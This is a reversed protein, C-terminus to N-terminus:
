KELSMKIMPQKEDQGEASPSGGNCAGKACSDGDGKVSVTDM